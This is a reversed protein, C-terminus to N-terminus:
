LSRGDFQKITLSTLNVDDLCRVNIAAMKNGKSDSGEGFTTSGCTPCFRHRIRHKNFSYTSLDSEPTIFHLKERPVFWLLHGRRRCISCNCETVKGLEGEGQYRVKECHCSGTYTM